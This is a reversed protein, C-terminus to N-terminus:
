PIQFPSIDNDRNYTSSMIWALVFSCFVNNCPIISFTKSKNHDSFPLNFLKPISDSFKPLDSLLTTARHTKDRSVYVIDARYCACHTTYPHIPSLPRLPLLFTTQTSEYTYLTIHLCALHDPLSLLTGGSRRCLGPSDKHQTGRAPATGNNGCVVSVLIQFWYGGLYGGLIIILIGCSSLRLILVNCFLAKQFNAWCTRIKSRGFCVCRLKYMSARIHMHSKMRPEISRFM